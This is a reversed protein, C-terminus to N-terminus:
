LGGAQLEQLVQLKRRNYEAVSQKPDEMLAQWQLLKQHVEVAMSQADKYSRGKAKALIMQAIDSVFDERDTM